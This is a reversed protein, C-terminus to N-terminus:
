RGQESALVQEITDPDSLGGLMRKGDVFFTPTVAVSYKAALQMDHLVQRRGLGSSLCADVRAQSLSARPTLYALMKGGKIAQLPIQGTYIKEYLEWFAANDQKAVCAANEAVIAADPHVPLPLSRFILRFRSKQDDPLKRLAQAFRGCYVCQFDSFVVLTVPADIRGLSPADSQQLETVADASLDLSKASSRNRVKKFLYGGRGVILVNFSLSIILLTLLVLDVSRSKRTQEVEQTKLSM